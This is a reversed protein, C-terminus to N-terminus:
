LDGSIGDMIQEQSPFIGRGQEHRDEIFVRDRPGFCEERKALPGSVPKQLM